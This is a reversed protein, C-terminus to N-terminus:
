IWESTNVTFSMTLWICPCTNQYQVLVLHPHSHTTLLPTRLLVALFQSEITYRCKTLKEHLLRMLANFLPISADNFPHMRQQLSNKMVFAEIRQLFRSFENEKNEVQCNCRMYVNNSETALTIFLCWIVTLNGGM